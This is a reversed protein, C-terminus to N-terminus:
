KLTSLGSKAAPNQPDLELAKRYAAAARGRDGKQLYARGLAAQFGSVDPKLQVARQYATIARDPQGAASWSAGLGAYAGADSPTRQSARQYAEAAERYKGSSFLTRGRAKYDVDPEDAAHYAVVGGRSSLPLPRAQAATLTRSEVDAKTDAALAENEGEAAPAPSQV